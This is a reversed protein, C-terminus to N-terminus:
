YLKTLRKIWCRMFYGVIGACLLGGLVGGVFVGIFHAQASSRGVKLLIGEFLISGGVFGLVAGLIMLAGVVRFREQNTLWRWLWSPRSM